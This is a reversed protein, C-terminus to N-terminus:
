EDMKADAEQDDTDSGSTASEYSDDSSEPDAEVPPKYEEGEDDSVMEEQTIESVSVDDPSGEDESLGDSDESGDVEVAAASAPVDDTPIIMDEVRNTLDDVEQDLDEDGSEEDEDEDSEQVEEETPPLYIVSDNAEEKIPGENPNVVKQM